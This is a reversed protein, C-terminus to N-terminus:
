HRVDESEQQFICLNVSGGCRIPGSQAPIFNTRDDDGHLSITADWDAVTWRTTM